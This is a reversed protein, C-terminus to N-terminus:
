GNWGAPAAPRPSSTIRTWGRRISWRRSRATAKPPARRAARSRSCTRTTLGGTQRRRRDPQPYPEGNGASCACASLSAATSSEKKAGLQRVRDARFRGAPGPARPHLCRPRRAGLTPPPPRSCCRAATAFAASKMRRSRVNRARTRLFPRQARSGNVAARRRKAGGPGGAAARDRSPRERAAAARDGRVGRPFCISEARPPPPASCAATATTSPRRRGVGAAEMAEILRAARNYGIKLRSAPGFDLRPPDRHRDEAEDYLPDSEDGESPDPLGDRRGGGPGM